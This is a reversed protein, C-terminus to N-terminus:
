SKLLQIMTQRKIEGGTRMIIFDSDRGHSVMGVEYNGM